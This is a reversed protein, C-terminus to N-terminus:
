QPSWILVTGDPLKLAGEGPKPTELFARKAKMPGSATLTKKKLDWLWVQDTAQTSDVAVGGLVLAKQPDLSVVLPTKISQGVPFPVDGLKATGTYLKAKKLAPEMEERRGLPALAGTKPDVTDVIPGLALAPIFSLAGVVLVV